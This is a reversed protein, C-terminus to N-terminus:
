FPSGTKAYFHTGEDGHAVELSLVVHNLVSIRFGGGYSAEFDQWQFDSIDRFVQGEDWFYVTDVKWDRYEYVTYRYELNLLALSEGFFRNKDYARFTASRDPYKGYGGLRALQHFPVSRNRLRDNHEGYFRM